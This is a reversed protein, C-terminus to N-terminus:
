PGGEKQAKSEARAHGGKVGLLPRVRPYFMALFWGRAGWRGRGPRIWSAAKLWPGQDRLNESAPPAPLTPPTLGPAGGSLGGPCPSRAAQM